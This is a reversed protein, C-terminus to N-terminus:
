EIDDEGVLEDTHIRLAFKLVMEDYNSPLKWEVEQREPSKLWITEHGKCFDTVSTQKGGCEKVICIM